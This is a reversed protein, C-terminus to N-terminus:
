LFDCQIKVMEFCIFPYPYKEFPSSAAKCAISNLDTSCVHLSSQFLVEDLTPNVHQYLVAAMTRTVFTREQCCDFDSIPTRCLHQCICINGLSDLGAATLLTDQNVDIGTIKKMALTTIELIWTKRDKVKMGAM